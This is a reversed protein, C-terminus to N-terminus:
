FKESFCLKGPNMVNRPDFINKIKKLAITNQIDATYVMDAWNGYPRSFFAGQELLVWSGEDILSQVAKIEVENDKDFPIVFECHCCVGQMLPQLYIGIDQFPYGCTQALSKMIEIYRETQEFTTIFFIDHFGGKYNLKWYKDESPKGIIERLLTNKEGLIDSTLSLGYEQAIERIEKEQYRVKEQPFRDLGAIGLVMNWNRIKQSINNCNDMKNGLMNVLNSKNLVYIEHGYRIKLLKYAFELLDNLYETTILFLKHIQPLVECKVSACTVIGMSGQAASLFRYFDTQYPGMPNVQFLLKSWREELTGAQDGAEGTWMKDGSGWVVECCRLPELMTWHYKPVTMPERELLSGLVSKTKRPILPMPLYLGAKALEPQLDTWTVGPEIWAMKNRRDVKLIRRMDSLDVIIAGPVNPVSDGKFHPSGSSVPVLSNSTSNAWKILSEVEETTSPKVVASPKSPPIFSEDRSYRSLVDPADHTNEKGVINRLEEVQIIDM